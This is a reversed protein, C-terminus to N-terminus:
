AKSFSLYSLNLIKKIFNQLLCNSSIQCSRIHNTSVQILCLRIGRTQFSTCSSRKNKFLTKKKKKKEKSISSHIKSTRSLPSLAYSFAGLKSFLHKDKSFRSKTLKRREREKKKKKTSVLSALSIKQFCISFAYRLAGTQCDASPSHRCACGIKGQNRMNKWHM